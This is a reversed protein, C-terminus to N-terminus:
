ILLTNLICSVILVRKSPSVILPRANTAPTLAVPYQPMVDTWFVVM